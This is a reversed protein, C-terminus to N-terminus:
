KQALLTRVARDIGPEDRGVITEWL